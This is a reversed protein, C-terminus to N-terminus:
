LFQNREPIFSSLRISSATGVPWCNCSNPILSLHRSSPLESWTFVNSLERVGADNDFSRFNFYILDERKESWKAPHDAQRHHPYILILDIVRRFRSELRNLRALNLHLCPPFLPSRHRVFLKDKSSFFERLQLPYTSCVFLFFASFNKVGNQLKKEKSSKIRLMM